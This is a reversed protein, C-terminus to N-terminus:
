LMPESTRLMLIFQLLALNNESRIGKLQPQIFAKRFCDVFNQKSFVEDVILPLDVSHSNNGNESINDWKLTHEGEGWGRGVMSVSPSEMVSSLSELLKLKRGHLMYSTFLAQCIQPLDSFDYRKMHGYLM